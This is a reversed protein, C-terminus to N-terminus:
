ATFLDALGAVLRVLGQESSPSYARQRAAGPTAVLTAAQEFEDLCGLASAHPQAADLLEDLIEPIPRLSETSPDILCADVGDRAALFRNEALMEELSCALESGYGEELELRAISQVLAVLTATDAVCSQADMIRVEITGFRPQPRVDWWLFTPEPLAGVRLQLDVTEVWEAYSEYRRPMGTRPFAQFLITRTSAFGADRGRWFPSNGSLALLLPLHVRLRNYLDIAHEPDPVGIHVHLAFTPERTTLDRMTRRILRYRSASTVETDSWLALPHMGAGAAALGMTRLADALEARQWRLQAVARGVSEHPDTRLEIAAQHTEASVYGALTAPLIELVDDIRQAPAWRRKPDLLM